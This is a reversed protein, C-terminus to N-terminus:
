WVTIQLRIFMKSEGTTQVGIQILPDGTSPDTGTTQTLNPTVTQWAVMDTSTQTSLTLGPINQNQRFTLTLYQTGSVTVTGVAPLAAWSAASMPVSPNIDCLYKLANPTGDNQPTAAPGSVSLNSSLQGFVSAAWADYGTIVTLIAANSTANPLVGNSAVCQFQDGSMALTVNSVTLTATASGAYVGSIDTLASWAGSGAPMRQWQCTPAPIGSAAVTFTGSQGEIATMNNPQATFSPLTEGARITDNFADAIYVVGINHNIAVAQPSYFRAAGGTGNATGSVGPTGAITSVVGTPTIRRVTNNGTISSGSTATAPVQSDTVYLNNSGDVAIGIPANFLANAGIGDIHGATGNRGYPTTVVGQPTIKRIVDNSPDAVYVNGSSDVAVSSPGNFEASAGTADLYGNTGATGALTSVSGAPTIKRITSNGSDAVYVNGSSDVCVGQPSNFRAATGVGDSSGSGSRGSSGAFTTVTGSSIKRITNNGSDAVYINNSGDIALANPTNFLANTGTGNTSGSRGARGYPTTVVGQPTVERITDNTYDAVFINGLSDVSVGSPCNFQAATGNGNAAGAVLAQGALTSISLPTDVVLVSPPATIANGTSTTVVCRFQDGSMPTAVNSVTLVATTAGSGALNSWTGSGMPMQQWQYATASGSMVVTFTANQGPALTQVAPATQVGILTQLLTQIDPAGIGTVPDYGVSAVYLGTSEAGSNNSGGTIDRFSPTGILPYIKPGLLGVPALNANACAQNILACVGAWTPSSWSTGGFQEPAGNLYVEAGTDPDAASAVDPVARTTGVPVGNGSQWAPRSFYISTGGGSYLWATESSASGSTNLNLSTGGVGTVSPDSAPNEVQLPGTVDPNSGSTGPTSGGDGSSAFITVGASALIAFYQSDTQVQGSSTSTSEGAGYSMSMQHIGYEPHAIVDNYVQQYAQDLATNSLSVTAYVRVQAGPAMSSSWEVDLTEEGTPSPLTGAIVQIFQMNGISQNVDYTQWFTTLDSKLPFTDIVIAISQGAGTINSSYLRGADYATAIQGPLYPPSTSTLSDKQVLHKRPHLHPQLGNIGVILPSLEVPVAPATIASTYEKGEFAVRAFTTHLKEQVQSVKGKAFVALHSGDQRTITFGQQRLWHVVAQYDADRPCYKTSAEAPAVIEGKAVRQQLEEFNRMKLAVEFEMEAATEPPNLFKRSIFARKADTPAESVSRVSRQLVVTQSTAALTAAMSAAFLLSSIIWLPFVLSHTKPPM